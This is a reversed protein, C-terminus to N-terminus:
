IDRLLIVSRIRNRAVGRPRLPHQVRFILAPDDVLVRSPSRRDNLSVSALAPPGSHFELFHRTLENGDETQFPCQNCRHPGVRQMYNEHKEM